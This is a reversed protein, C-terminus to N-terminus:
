LAKPNHATLTHGGQLALKTRKRTHAGGGRGAARELPCSTPLGWEEGAAVPHVGRRAVRTTPPLRASSSYAPWKGMAVTLALGRGPPGPARLAVAVGRRRAQLGGGPPSGGPPSPERGGGALGVGPASLPPQRHPVGEAKREGGRADIAAPM